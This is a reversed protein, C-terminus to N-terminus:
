LWLRGPIGGNAAIRDQLQIAPVEACRGDHQLALAAAIGAAEGLAMATATIRVSATAEHTASICRGTVLLNDVKKPLMVRYPVDYCNALDTKIWHLEEGAPDHIDIPFACIAVADEFTRGLIVDEETLTYRGKIRRSERVGILDGTEVLVSQEFGPIYGRMFRLIEDIQRRAIREAQSLEQANTGRLHTVRTMNVIAEGPRVGQFFLVRDREVSLIGDRKAKKVADFYGSVAIYSANLAGEGLIFQEPHQRMMERVQSFDVGGLKFLMTMPQSLGDSLRGQLFEAKSMMSVDADGTADVFVDATFLSKGSKNVCALEKLFSAKVPSLHAGCVFTHLMLDIGPQEALMEFYVQKLETPEIPTITSIVGLPDPVHGLSGGRTELRDVIQQALGRVVQKEGAHFTMLPCVMAATNMGGLIGNKEILLVRAGERAAAIAAAMGSPGAGAVIVDYRNKM